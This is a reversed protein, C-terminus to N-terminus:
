HTDAWNNGIKFEAGIPLNFNFYEGSRRAADLVAKGFEEALDKKVAYQIEDHIWGLM